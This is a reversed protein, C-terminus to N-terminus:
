ASIELLIRGFQLKRIRFIALRRHLTGCIAIKAEINGV